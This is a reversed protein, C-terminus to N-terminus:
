LLLSIIKYNCSIYIQRNISVMNLITVIQSNNLITQINDSYFNIIHNLFFIINSKINNVNFKINKDNIDIIFVIIITIDIRM